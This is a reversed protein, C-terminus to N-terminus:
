ATRCRFTAARSKPISSTFLKDKKIAGGLSGGAQNRRESQVLGSLPDRAEFGTSRYFWYATGHLQNSGSKTVTNVIGGMARGYEASYNSSVVQFEQVADQSIQAAIRTRGANENYFQDTTDTGDVLFANQGAVGRFTLLGYNGDASVGPTLLVFSDVRRGNIPLTQISRNDVVNSLDTKTDEVLTAAESVEIQTTTQGVSLAIQLDMNQGVQLTLNKASYTAFGPATVTVAYGSGPVLAPATFVGEGNTGLTRLVGQGESSIVVEANPVAASSPDRVVGSIGAVGAAQAFVVSTLLVPVLLLALFSTLVRWPVVRVARFPISRTM